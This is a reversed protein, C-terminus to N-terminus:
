RSATLELMWYLPRRDDTATQNWTDFHIVSERMPATRASPRRVELANFYGILETLV